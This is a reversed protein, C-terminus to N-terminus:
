DDRNNLGVTNASGGDVIGFSNTQNADVICNSSSTGLDIGVLTASVGAGSHIEANNHCVISKQANVYICTASESVLDANLGINYLENNTIKVGICNDDVHIGWVDTGTGGLDVDYITNDSVVVRELALLQIGYKDFGSIMNGRVLCRATTGPDGGLVLCGIGGGAAQALDGEFFNDDIWANGLNTFRFGYESADYMECNKVRIGVCSSSASCDIFAHLRSSQNSTVVVRELHLDTVASGVTDRILARSVTGTAAAGADDYRFHVDLLKLGVLNGAEFLHTDGSWTVVSGNTGDQAGGEIVLNEIGPTIPLTASTETVPGIIRIRWGRSDTASSEDEMVKAYNVADSLRTFHGATQAYATNGVAGVTLVVEEDVRTITKTLTMSDTVAPVGDTVYRHLYLIDDRDITLSTSPGAGVGEEISYTLTSLDLKVYSVKSANLTAFSASAPVETIQGKYIYTGATVSIALAAESVVAGALLGTSFGGFGSAGGLSAANCAALISAHSTLSTNAPDSLPVWTAGTNGDKFRLAEATDEVSIAAKLTGDHFSYTLLDYAQSTDGYVALASQNAFNQCILSIPKQNGLWINAGQAENGRTDPNSDFHNHYAANLGLSAYYTGASGTLVPSKDVASIAWTSVGSFTCSADLPAYTIADNAPGWAVPNVRKFLVYGSPAAGVQSDVVTADTTASASAHTWTIKTGPAFDVEVTGAGATRNVTVLWLDEGLIRRSPSWQNSVTDPSVALAQYGVKMFKMYSKLADIHARSWGQVSPDEIIGKAAAAGQSMLKEGVTTLTYCHMYYDGGVITEADFQFEPNLLWGPPSCPICTGNTNPNPEFRVPYSAPTVSIVDSSGGAGYLITGAPLTTNQEADTELDVHGLKNHGVYGRYSASDNNIKYAINGGEVKFDEGAALTGLYLDNGIKYYVYASNEREETTSAGDAHDPPTQWTILEGATFVAGSDVTVKHLGGRTLIVKSGNAHTTKNPIVEAVMWLGNSTTPSTVNEIEMFVGPRLYLEDTPRATIYFGDEEWSAISTSENGGGYPNIDSTVQVVPPITTPLSHETSGIYSQVGFYSTAAADVSVDTPLAVHNEAPDPYDADLLTGDSTRVFQVYKGLNAKHVGVYVWQPAGTGSGLNIETAGTVVDKLSAYGYTTPGAETRTPTLVDARLAPSDLVSKLFDTNASLAGLARNWALSLGEEGYALFKTAPSQPDYPTLDENAATTTLASEAPTKGALRGFYKYTM